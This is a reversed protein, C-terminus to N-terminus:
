GHTTPAGTRWGRRRNPHRTTTVGTASPVSSRRRSRLRLEPAPVPAPLHRWRRWGSSRSCAMWRSIKEEPSPKNPSSPPSSSPAASITDLQSIHSSGKRKGKNTRTAAVYYGQLFFDGCGSAAEEGRERFPLLSSRRLPFSNYFLSSSSTAETPRKKNRQKHSASRFQTSRSCHLSLWGIYLLVLLVPRVIIIIILIIILM